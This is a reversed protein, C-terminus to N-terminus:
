PRKGGTAPPRFQYVKASRQPAPMRQPLWLVVGGTTDALWEYGCGCERRDGHQVRRCPNPLPRGCACEPALRAAVCPMHEPGHGPCHFGQTVVSM